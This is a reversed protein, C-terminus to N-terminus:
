YKARKIIQQEDEWIALGTNIDTLTLQFYYEIQEKNRGMRIRREIIKGSISLDPAIMQGQGAVTAQNFEADGRLQRTAMSMEDEPGNIGVATTVTAKGSRLLEVRIKKILQDTDIYQMTENIVRSIAVVYRGGDRRNLSGMDIMSAIMREAASNFDRYDLDAVAPGRDNNQDVMEVTTACGCLMVAFMVVSLFFAFKKM